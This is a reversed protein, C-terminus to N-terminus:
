WPRLNISVFPFALCGDCGELWYTNMKGQSVLAELPQPPRRCSVFTSILPLARKAFIRLWGVHIFGASDDALTRWQHPFFLSVNLWGLGM